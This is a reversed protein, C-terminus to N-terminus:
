AIVGRRKLDAYAIQTARPQGPITKQLFHLSEVSEPHLPMELAKFRNVQLIIRDLEAHSMQKKSYGKRDYKHGPYTECVTAFDSFSVSKVMRNGSSSKSASSTSDARSFRVSEASYAETLSDLSESSADHWTEHDSSPSNRLCPSAPRMNPDWAPTKSKRSDGVRAVQSVFSSIKSKIRGLQADTEGSRNSGVSMSDNDATQASRKQVSAKLGAAWSQM